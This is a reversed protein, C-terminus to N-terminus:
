FEIYLGNQEKWLVGVSQIYSPSLGPYLKCSVCSDWTNMFDVAVAWPCSFFFDEPFSWEKLEVTVLLWM